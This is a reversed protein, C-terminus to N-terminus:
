SPNWIGSIPPMRDNKFSHIQMTLGKADIQDVRGLSLSTGILICSATILCALADVLDDLSASSRGLQARHASLYSESITLGSRRLLAVREALGTATKKGDKLPGGNLQAFTVEPHVEYVFRQRPSTMLEDVERIKTAINFAQKSIGIGMADRNLRLAERFTQAQLATRAPPSFVSSARPWGLLRRAATDCDRPENSPIGIPIDIAVIRRRGAKSFIPVLNSTIEFRLDSFDPASRAVVWGDRCGDIGYVFTNAASNERRDELGRRM